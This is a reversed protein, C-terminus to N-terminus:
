HAIKLGIVGAVILLLCLVRVVTVSESLYLMGFVATGVVGIGVWVAYATGVPITRMAYALGGMSLALAVVFVASPLLRTFGASKGLAIAWGTEFLGSIVLIIWNMTHTRTTKAQGPVVHERGSRRQSAGSEGDYFSKEASAAISAYRV